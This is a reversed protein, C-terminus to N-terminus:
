IRFCFKFEFCLLLFFISFSFSSPLRTAALRSPKAAWGARGRGGQVWCARVHGMLWGLVRERGRVRRGRRCGGGGPGWADAVGLWLITKRGM